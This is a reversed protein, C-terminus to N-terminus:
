LNTRAQIRKGEKYINLFITGSKIKELNGNIIFASDQAKLQFSLFLVASLISILKKMSIVKPGFNFNNAFFSKGSM